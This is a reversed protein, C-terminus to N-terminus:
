RHCELHSDDGILVKYTSYYWFSPLLPLRGSIDERTDLLLKATWPCFYSKTPAKPPVCSITFGWHLGHSFFSTKLLCAWTRPVSNCVTTGAVSGSVARDRQPSLWLGTQNPRAVLVMQWPVQGSDCRSMNCIVPEGAKIGVTSESTAYSRAKAM